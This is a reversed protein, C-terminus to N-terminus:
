VSKAIHDFPILQINMNKACQDSAWKIGEILTKQSVERSLVLLPGKIESILKKKIDSMSIGKSGVISDKTLDRMSLDDFIVIVPVNSDFLALLKLYEEFEEDLTRAPSILMFIADSQITTNAGVLVTATDTGVNISFNLRKTFAEIISQNRLHTREYVNIKQFYLLFLQKVLEEHNSGSTAFFLWSLKQKLQLILETNAILIHQEMQFLVDLIQANVTRLFKTNIENISKKGSLLKLFAHELQVKKSLIDKELKSPFYIVLLTYAVNGHRNDILSLDELNFAYVMSKLGPVDDTIPYPGYLRRDMAFRQITMLIVGQRIAFSEEDSKSKFFNNNWSSVLEPGSDGFKLVHIALINKAM